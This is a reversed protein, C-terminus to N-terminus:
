NKRVVGVSLNDAVISQADADTVEEVHIGFRPSAGAKRSAKFRAVAVRGTPRSGVQFSALTLRGGANDINVVLPRSDFGEALGGEVDASSFEAVRPDFELVIQYAGLIKDTDIVLALEEKSVEQFSDDRERVRKASSLSPIVDANSFLRIQRASDGFLEDVRLETQSFPAVAISHTAVFRGAQDLGNVTVQAKFSNPNSLKLSQSDASNVFMSDEKAIWEVADRSENQGPEEGIRTYSLQVRDDNSVAGLWGSVAKGSLGFAERITIARTSHAGVRIQVQGLLEGSAKFAWLDLTADHDNQNVTLLQTDEHPGSSFEPVYLRTEATAVVSVFCISAIVGLMM